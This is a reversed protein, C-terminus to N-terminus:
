IIIKKLKNSISIIIFIGGGCLIIIPAFPLDAYFSLAIGFANMIQAFIISLIIMMLPSTSIIRASMAPILIISTVLLAGVIKITVLVSFSLLSLFIFEIISVNINRSSAIDKSIIVLIIKKYFSFFFVFVFLALISLSIIDRSSAIVIDGFLLSTFNFKSPFIYSLILAFSIMLSSTLGIAANNGSKNKLKFVIFAFLATNIIGAYFIPIGLLVSIVAALMSAHALGDGFYVYRKWLVLCGLPAFILGILISIVIITTM